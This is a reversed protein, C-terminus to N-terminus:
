QKWLKKWDVSPALFDRVMHTAFSPIPCFLKQGKKAIDLWVDHDLYGYKKFIELNDMFVDRRLGFTMTCTETSRFHHDDVLEIQCMNSHAERDLYYNLHDYPSVLGLKKIGELYKKVDLDPNWMYDCELFLILEDDQKSALDYQLLCTENIGIKTPKYVYEFPLERELMEGELYDCYDGLVVVKPKIDAFAKVFSRLCLENLKFKDEQFVPSPNTSAISCLRYYVIM